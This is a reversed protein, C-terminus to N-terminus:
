VGTIWPHNLADKASIRHNPDIELLTKVFNYFQIDTSKLRKKLTTRKPILIHMKKAGGRKKTEFDRSKSINNETNNLSDNVEIFLLKEKSFYDNILKGSNFM